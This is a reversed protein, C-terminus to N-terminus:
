ASIISEGQGVSVDGQIMTVKQVDCDAQHSSPPMKSMM